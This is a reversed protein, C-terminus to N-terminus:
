RSERRFIFPRKCGAAREPRTFLDRKGYGTIGVAGVDGPVLATDDLVARIVECVGRWLVEPNREAHGPAPTIPRLVRSSLGLEEGDLGYVGAKVATGGADIGLVFRAVDMM